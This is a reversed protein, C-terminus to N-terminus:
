PERRSDVLKKMENEMNEVVQAPIAVDALHAGNLKKHHALITERSEACHNIYAIAEEALKDSRKGMEESLQKMEVRMKGKMRNVVERLDNATKEAQAILADGHKEVADALALADNGALRAAERITNALLEAVKDYTDENEM